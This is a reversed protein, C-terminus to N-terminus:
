WVFYSYLRTNFCLLICVIGANEEISVSGNRQFVNFFSSDNLKLSPYMGSMVICAMCFAVFSRSSPREQCAM